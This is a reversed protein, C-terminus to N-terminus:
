IGILDAYCNPRRQPAPKGGEQGNPNPSPLAEANSAPSRGPRQALEGERVRTLLGLRGWGRLGRVPSLTWGGTGASGLRCLRRRPPKRAMMKSGPLQNRLIFLEGRARRAATSLTM